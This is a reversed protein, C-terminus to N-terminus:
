QSTSWSFISIDDLNVQHWGELDRDVQKGPACPFPDPLHLLSHPDLVVEAKSDGHRYDALFLQLHFLGYKIIALFGCLYYFVLKIHFLEYKIMALYVKSCSLNIIIISIYYSLNIEFDCSINDLNIERLQSAPHHGVLGAELGGDPDELM